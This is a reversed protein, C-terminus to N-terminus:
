QIHATHSKPTRNGSRCSVVGHKHCFRLSSAWQGTQSGLPHISCYSPPYYHKHESCNCTGTHNPLSNTLHLTITGYYLIQMPFDSVKSNLGFVHLWTNLFMFVLCVSYGGYLEFPLRLFVYEHMYSLSLPNSTSGRVVASADREGEEENPTVNANEGDPANVGDAEVLVALQTSIIKSCIVTGLVAFITAFLIYERDFSYIM